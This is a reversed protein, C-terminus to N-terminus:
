DGKAPTLREKDSTPGKKYKEVIPVVSKLDLYTIEIIQESQDSNKKTEPGLSVIVPLFRGNPHNPHQSNFRVPVKAHANQDASYQKFLRQQDKELAEYDVPDMWPRLKEMLEPGSKGILEKSEARLGFFENAKVSAGQLTAAKLQSGKKIALVVTNAHYSDLQNLHQIIYTNDIIEQKLWNGIPNEITLSGITIGGGLVFSLLAGLGTLWNAM